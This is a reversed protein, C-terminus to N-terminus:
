DARVFRSPARRFARYREDVSRGQAAALANLISFSGTFQPTERLVAQTKAAAATIQKNPFDLEDPWRIVVYALLAGGLKEDARGMALTSAADDPIAETWIIDPHQSLGSRTFGFLARDGAGHDRGSFSAHTRDPSRDLRCFLQRRLQGPDLIKGAGLAHDDAAGPRRRDGGPDNGLRGLLWVSACKRSAFDDAIWFRDDHDAIDAFLSTWNPDVNRLGRAATDQRRHLHRQGDLMLHVADTLGIVFVLNPM